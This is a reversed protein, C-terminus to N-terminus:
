ERKGKKKQEEEKRAVHDDMEAMARKLERPPTKMTKKRYHHLLVFTGEGDYYFFFVRNAGPRLEWIGGGLSKCADVPLNFGNQQLLDICRVVQQYQIRADKASTSKKKLSDLFEKIDSFGDATEYFVIKNMLDGKETKM